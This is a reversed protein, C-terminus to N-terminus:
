PGREQTELYAMLDAIQRVTLRRWGQRLEEPPLRVHNWLAAIVAGRSGRGALVPAHHGHCGTCGAASVTMGGRAASGADAFYQVTGLYAVLDAMEAATFRPVAMGAAQMAGVMTAAKNWMAAAFAVPDRPALATLDPGVSGGDGGARHCRVCGRERFLLRGRDAEGGLARVPELPPRQGFTGVFAVLDEIERRTLLPRAIRQVRMEAAMAPAHNWLAAALDISSAWAGLGDLAPGLVGGVTGVRHCVICQRSSFLERGVEPAGSPTWSGVWFLFAMLDAAEWAELRPPRQGGDAFRQAMQPLHNWLATVVGALSRVSLQALDPGETGGIGNVAHCDGCGKTGYVRSGASISQAPTPVDQAALSRGALGLGVVVTWRWSRRAVRVTV